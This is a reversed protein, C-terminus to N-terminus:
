IEWSAAATAAAATRSESSTSGEGVVPTTSTFLHTLLHAAVLVNLGNGILEYWKHQSIMAPVVFSTADFGFLHLLESPSFFRLKKTGFQNLEESWWKSNFVREGPAATSAAGGSASATSQAQEAGEPDVAAFPRKSGAGAAAAVVPASANVNSAVSAKAAVVAGAAGAGAGATAVLESESEASEYLLVSGTGKIYRSYSKTFCSSATDEKSRIDFCWSSNKELLKGPVQVAALQAETLHADVYYALSRTPASHAPCSPISRHIFMPAAAAAAATAGGAVAAGGSGGGSSSSTSTSTSSNINSSSSSSPADVFQANRAAVCYYRPRENPVGFQSPTLIFQRYAYGRERLTDLLLACCDSEEFGVVNELAIYTPPARMSKLIGMINLFSKSRGDNTDRFETKNNRTYPQCPPSMVWAAANCKDLQQATVHELSKASPKLKYNAQYVENAATNVDFAAVVEFEKKNDDGTTTSAAAAAATATATATAAATVTAAAFHMALASHWGGIGSYFEVVRLPAAAPGQPAAAATAAAQQM